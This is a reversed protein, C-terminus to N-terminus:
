FVQQVSAPMISFCTEEMGLAGIAATIMASGMVGMTTTPSQLFIIQIAYAGVIDFVRVFSVLVPNSLTIATYLLYVAAISMCAVAVIGGWTHLTISTVNSSLIFNGPDVTSSLLSVALGGFVVYLLLSLMSCDMSQSLVTCTVYNASKACSGLIGAIAGLYYLSPNLSIARNSM